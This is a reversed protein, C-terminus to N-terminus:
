NMEEEEIIIFQGGDLEYGSLDFGDLDFTIELQDDIGEYENVQFYFTLSAGLNSFDLAQDAEPNLESLDEDAEFLVILTSATLESSVVTVEVESSESRNQVTQETTTILTPAIVEKQCSTIILTLFIATFFM